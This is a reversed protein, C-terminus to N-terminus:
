KSLRELALIFAAETLDSGYKEATDSVAKVAKKMYNELEKNVKEETWKENRRNQVWELYSVIVGGSSAVIAPLIDVGKKSLMEYAAENVPGNAVEVIIKAKVEEANNGSVADGLAALVLVDVKQGIIEGSEKQRVGAKNYEAFRGKKAKYRALEKANLGTASFLTAGSDSAAVLKWGPHDSAAVGAFYAGANGFGQIAYTIPKGGFNKAKLIENLAIVAGRGTAASRGRSGGAGISKGTFSARSIDGTQNKYEDVMWDIIQANTNVDPAPIDKDPGIHKYIKKVYGRSLEELESESLKKPDVVVGGKGGGLPLGIVASKLSMLTALARVEGLEVDAHFRLGGKYPGLKNNHQVRYADYKKGQKTEIKFKHEADAKLISEIETNSLGIKKGAQQILHRATSLMNMIMVFIPKLAM